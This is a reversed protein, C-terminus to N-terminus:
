SGPLEYGERREYDLLANAEADGPFEWRDPDWTLPRRLRYTLNLLHCIAVSGAGVEVPCTTPGEGRIAQLWDQAHSPHRPLREADEPLPDELISAPSADIRGRDVPLVGQTGIFTTGSMGGHVMRVGDDFVVSAGSRAGPVSPPHVQIPGSGDRRLGWMAIDFHHAGMDALGGGAYEWYRRWSPYHGHVGRPSLDSHYPRAPAPGLWRDWDLGPELEEAPLDCAVAPDGVGVHVTLIEGLRGNRVMECATVFRQSFETRQQSGTQFVVGAKRVAPIVLQAERLTLTLPKECYIHKGRAAADLIQHAHWHDPTAIVVADVDARDMAEEHRTTAFCDTGPQREEALAKAAALRNADVDCVATVQFGGGLFANRMLNMGRKGPGVVAVRVPSPDQRGLALAPSWASLASAAAGLHFARRTLPPTM